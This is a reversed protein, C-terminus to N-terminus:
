YLGFVNGVVIILWLAIMAIMLVVGVKTINRLDEGVYVYEQAARAALVSGPKMKVHGRQHSRVTPTPLADTAVGDETLV